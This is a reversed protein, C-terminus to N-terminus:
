THGNGNRGRAALAVGNIANGSAILAILLRLITDIEGHGSVLMWILVIMLVAASFIQFYARTTDITPWKM